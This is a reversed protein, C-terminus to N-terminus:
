TLNFTLFAKQKEVDISGDIEWKEGKAIRVVESWLDKKDFPQLYINYHNQIFPLGKNGRDNVPLKPVITYKEEDRFCVDLQIQEVDRLDGRYHLTCFLPAIKMRVVDEAAEQLSQYGQPEEYRKAVYRRDEALLNKLSM